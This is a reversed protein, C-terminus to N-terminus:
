AKRRTAPASAPRAEAGILVMSLCHFERDSTLSVVTNLVRVHPNAAIWASVREGLVERDRAKTASFVKFVSIPGAEDESPRAQRAANSGARAAGGSVGDGAVRSRTSEPARATGTANTMSSAGVIRFAPSLPFPDYHSLRHGFQAM